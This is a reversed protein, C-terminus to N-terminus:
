RELENRLKQTWRSLRVRMNNDTIGEAKALEAIPVGFLHYKKILNWEKEGITIPATMELEKINFNPDEEALEPKGQDLPEMCWYRMRRHFELIKFRATRLLWLHPSPHGWLEDQKLLATYFTEQVIDESIFKNQFVRYVYKYVFDYNQNYFEAFGNIASIEEGMKQIAM